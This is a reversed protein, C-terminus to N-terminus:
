LDQTEGFLGGGGPGCLMAFVNEVEVKQGQDNRTTADEDKIGGGSEGNAEVVQCQGHCLM